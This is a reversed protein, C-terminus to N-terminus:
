GNNPSTVKVLTMIAVVCMVGIGITGCLKPASNRTADASILIIGMIYSLSGMAFAIAPSMMTKPRAAAWAEAPEDELANIIRYLWACALASFTCAHTAIYYLFAAMNKMKDDVKFLESPMNGLAFGGILTAITAVNVLENMLQEKTQRSPVRASKEDPFVEVGVVAM